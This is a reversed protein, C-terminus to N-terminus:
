MNSSASAAPMQEIPASTIWTPGIGVGAIANRVTSMRQSAPTSSRRSGCGTGPCRADLEEAVVAELQGVLELAPDLLQDVRALERAM